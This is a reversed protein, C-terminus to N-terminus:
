HFPVDFVLEYPAMSPFVEKEDHRQATSKRIRTLVCIVAIRHRVHPINQIYVDGGSM